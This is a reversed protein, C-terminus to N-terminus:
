QLLEDINIRPISLFSEPNCTVIDAKKTCIEEIFQKSKIILKGNPNFVDTNTYHKGQMFDAAGILIINKWGKHICYSIAYDHTFGCWALKGDKYIDEITNERYKFAYTDILEKNAKRILDGHYYLSITSIDTYKNAVSAIREDTFIHLSTKFKCIVRNIGISTYKELIYSLKDEVTGLFPSDGLIIITNGKDYM